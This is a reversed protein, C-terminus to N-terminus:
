RAEEQPVQAEYCDLADELGAIYARFVQDRRKLLAYGKGSELFPLGSLKPLEPRGPRPCRAVEVIVPAPTEVATPTACGSCLTTLAILCPAVHRMM